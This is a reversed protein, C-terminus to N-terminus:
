PHANKDDTRQATRVTELYRSVLRAQDPKLRAKRTMRSMWARWEADGYDAPNYFKHCRACKATYLRTAYQLEASSFNGANLTVPVTPPLVNSNGRSLSPADRCGTLGAAMALAVM